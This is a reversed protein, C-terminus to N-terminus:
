TTAAHPPRQDFRHVFARAAGTNRAHVPLRVLCVARRHRQVVFDRLTRTKEDVALHNRLARRAFGAKSSGTAFFASRRAKSPASTSTHVASERMATWIRRRPEASRHTRAPM